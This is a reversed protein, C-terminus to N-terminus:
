ADLEGYILNMPMIAPKTCSSQLKYLKGEDSSDQIGEMIDLVHFAMEGNARHDRGSLIAYAMDAVGIGRNGGNYGHTLPIESWKDSEPTYIKVPGDFNNVDPVRITGRTGYIEIGPLGSAWVDFSTVLTGIAGNRFNLVSALHTPVDVKIKTGFKPKSTITREAFTIKTSGMVSDVPGILNILATLYYPGMDFMPGGGVKYYFAPDHHWTEHGHSMLFATAAVPTGIWGDEILKRCTQVGAGMFTDPAGGVLLGKEKAKKLVELGDKRTAAFPKEVYVNKGAELAAMNVKAHAGPITLNVVIKIEPDALLEEVSCAKPINFEEASMKAREPILDACAAVELINFTNQCNKFYVESISGCGVIGVKVKEM